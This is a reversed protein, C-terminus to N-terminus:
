IAGVSIEPTARDSINPGALFYADCSGLERGCHPVFHCPVPCPERQEDVAGVGV